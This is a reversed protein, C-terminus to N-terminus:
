KVKAASWTHFYKRFTAFPLGTLDQFGWPNKLNITKASEDVAVITYAHTM